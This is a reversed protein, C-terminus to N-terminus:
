DPKPMWVVRGDIRALRGLGQERLHSAVVLEGSEVLRDIVQRRTTAAQTNDSDFMVAWDPENLSPEAVVVDGLVYGQEGGSAIAISTHGPTHGPTPLLTLSPGLSQESSFLDVVGAQELPALMTDWNDGGEDRFFRWDAEPIHYRARAFRPQGTTLDVNWGTHDGHLHTFVVLDVEDHRIGAEALGPLLGGEGGPGLGTDVLITKGDARLVACTCIMALAGDPPLTDALREGADPYIEAGPFSFNTDVISVIEVSGVTALQM